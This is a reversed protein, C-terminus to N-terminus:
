LVEMALRTEDYTRRNTVAWLVWEVPLIQRAEISKWAWDAPRGIDTDWDLFLSSRREHTRDNHREMHVSGMPDTVVAYSKLREAYSLSGTM